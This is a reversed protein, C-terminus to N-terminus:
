DILRLFKKIKKLNISNKENVKMKLNSSQLSNVWVIKILKLQVM